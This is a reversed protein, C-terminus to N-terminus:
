LVSPLIRLPKLPKTDGMQVRARERYDVLLALMRVTLYRREAIPTECLAIWFPAPISDRLKWQCVIADPVGLENALASSSPWWSIIESFSKPKHDEDIIPM